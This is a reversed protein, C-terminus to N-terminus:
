NPLTEYISTYLSALPDELRGGLEQECRVLVEQHETKKKNTQKNTLSKGHEDAVGKQCLYKLHKHPRRTVHDCM